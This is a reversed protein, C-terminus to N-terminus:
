HAAAMIRAARNVTPGFHNGDREEAEGTHMGLRVRLKGGGPSTERALMRQVDVAAVADGARGFAAGIGDGMSAFVVEGHADVVAALLEDHGALVGRRHVDRLPVGADLAAM